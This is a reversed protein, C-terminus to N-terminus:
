VGRVSIEPTHYWSDLPQGYVGAATEAKKRLKDAGIKMSNAYSGSLAGSTILPRKSKTM